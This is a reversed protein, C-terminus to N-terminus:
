EKLLKLDKYVEKLLEGPDVDIALAILYLEDARLKTSDNGSLQSLRSKSIGTRRAVEAKNISKKTLYLGLNTM